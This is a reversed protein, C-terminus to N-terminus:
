ENRDKLSADTGGLIYDRSSAVCFGEKEFAYGLLDIGPFISLVLQDM